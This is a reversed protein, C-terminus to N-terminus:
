LPPQQPNGLLFARVLQVFEEPKEALALHGAGRLVALRGNPLRAAMQRSHELPTIRDREGCIVLTPIDIRSLMDMRAYSRPPTNRPGGLCGSRFWREVWPRPLPLEHHPHPLLLFEEVQREIGRLHGIRRLGQQRRPDSLVERVLPWAMVTRADNDAYTDVLILRDVAHPHTLAHEIAIPGGNSLALVHVRQFGLAARLMDLDAVDTALTSAAQDKQGHRVDRVRTRGYHRQDYRIVTLKQALRDAVPDFIRHDAAGHVLVLPPGSGLVEYYLNCGPLPLFRGEPAPALTCAATGLALLTWLRQL